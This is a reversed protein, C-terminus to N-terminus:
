MVENVKNTSPVQKSSQIADWESQLRQHADQDSADYFRILGEKPGRM